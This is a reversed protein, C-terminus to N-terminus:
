RPSSPRLAQGSGPRLAQGSGPRLTLRHAAAKEVAPRTFALPFFDGRTWPELLNGYFPSGPQGSIGPGITVLSADPDAFNTILRYVAGTANVTEAGGDREVTPLDFASLLPHKFVSAHIRGWRWAGADPGQSATLSKVAAGLGAEVLRQREVGGARRLADLDIQRRWTEYIAAAASEKLMQNDWGAVLARARETESSAATWGQFLPKLEAAETKYSDRLMLRLDEVEFKKGAKRAEGLLHALREYRRYPPRGTYFLPNEFGPPHINNNATAIWGRPPDLEQPLDTRLGEWDFAGTGPVPLRGDFGRRKPAAASVRFAIAGDASACVLNTPPSRMFDANVLCDRASSAQDMRLGGIYEATGQEMLSSRLAYARHHVGDEYFIPGHRSFKVTLTRPAEGKVHITEVVTRLPEWAGNWKVENANAPNVEEVFVDAEDTGTATRGWAVKGNHGRIVGPLGPETAGAVDWGPANLHVLYRWAPLTVQRHPDDVMLPRGTASMAASLAWNNSGPSLELAGEGSLAALSSQSVVSSQSMKNKAGPWQEYQPLLPPRPFDEAMVGDLAELVGDSIIRVDLGAPVTLDAYPDPRARRNAEVAGYKAVAQALRLESRASGIAATVRARYLIDEAKWPEPTLGTLKFEVPLNDGAATIFANVGNVYAEFLRRAEPHYATWEKDDFPGRFRLTRVLRDHAVGAAGVIEATRGQAVRRNMEMHWLRDQAVVFGQAFFLDDVSGAYIHPVGWRDRIVEVDHQLGAAEITGDITALSARALAEFSGSNKTEAPRGSGACGAAALAAAAIMLKSVRMLANCISVQGPQPRRDSDLPRM